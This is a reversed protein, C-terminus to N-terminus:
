AAAYGKRFRQIGATGAEFTIGLYFDNGVSSARKIWVVMGGTCPASMEWRVKEMPFHYGTHALAADTTRKGPGGGSSWVRNDGNLTLGTLTIGTTHRIFPHYTPAANPAVASITGASVTLSPVLKGNLARADYIEISEVLDSLTLSGTRAEISKIRGSGPYITATDLWGHPFVMLQQFANAAAVFVSLTMERM